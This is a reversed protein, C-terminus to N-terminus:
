HVTRGARGVALQFLTKAREESAGDANNDAEGFCLATARSHPKIQWICAYVVFGAPIPEMNHAERQMRIEAPTARRVRHSREPHGAFWAADDDAAHRVALLQQPTM